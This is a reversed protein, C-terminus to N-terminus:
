LVTVRKICFDSLMYGHCNFALCKPRGFCPLASPMLTKVSNCVLQYMTSLWITTILLQAFQIYSPMGLACWQMLLAARTM